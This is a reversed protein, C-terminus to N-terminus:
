IRTLQVDVVAGGANFTGTLSGNGDTAILYGRGQTGDYAWFDFGFETGVVRGEGYASIGWQTIETIIAADGFQEIEYTLSNAGIWSGTLDVQSTRASAAGDRVGAELASLRSEIGTQGDMITQETTGNFDIQGKMINVSEVQQGSALAYVVVATVVIFAGVSGWKVFRSFRRRPGPYPPRNSRLVEGGRATRTTWAHGDWYRLSRGDAGSIPDPYWGPPYTSTTDNSSM